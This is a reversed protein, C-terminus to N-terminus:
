SFTRFIRATRMIKYNFRAEPVAPTGVDFVAANTGVTTVTPSAGISFRATYNPDQMWFPGTTDSVTGASGGDFTELATLTGEWEWRVASSAPIPYPSVWRGYTPSWTAVGGNVPAGTSLDTVFWPLSRQSSGPQNPGFNWPTFSGPFQVSLARAIDNGFQNYSTFCYGPVLETFTVTMDLNQIM